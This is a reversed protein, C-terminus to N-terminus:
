DRQAGYAEPLLSLIEQIRTAGDDEKQEQGHCLEAAQLRSM